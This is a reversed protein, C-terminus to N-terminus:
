PPTVTISGSNSGGSANAATVTATNPIPVPDCNSLQMQLPKVFDKIAATFSDSSRSKLYAKGFTLCQNAQFIGALQLDISAEGFTLTSLSRGGNPNIPDIVSGATNAQGEFTGLQLPHLRDWCPPQQGNAECTGSTIWRHFGMSLNVGGNSLDYKILVDGATRVPTVTNDPTNQVQASQNLEFDMNTTGSPDLVRIWALYLFDHVTNGVAVRNNHQYFRLLDSKNPPISGDTVSPIPTDEKTGQGFSDDTAGTADLACGKFTGVCSILNATGWDAGGNTVLNGDMELKTGNAVPTQVVFSAPVLASVNVTASAGPALEAVSCTLLKTSADVACTTWGSFTGLTWPLSALLQDSLAVGFAKGQGTNSVVITFTATTGAVVSGNDPTKEITLNPAVYVKTAPGSGGPGASGNTARTLTVAGVVASGSANATFTGATTSNITLTCTRSNGSQADCSVTGLTSPTPSVTIAIPAIVPTGGGNPAVTMVATFTHAETTSNQDTLPSLTIFAEPRTNVFANSLAASPNATTLTAQQPTPDLNYGAPAATETVTYTGLALGEVKFKGAAPDADPAANDTVNQCGGGQLCVSFTAGALPANNNSGDVKNWTLSGGVYLKTAPGSGGPGATGNTARTLSVSGVTLTVSANATFTGAAASNITLTCTRSNGAQAQCVVSGLTGPTPSVTIAIAPITVAASGNPIATAVATFTHQENLGNTESNPSITIFANPQTNVFANALAASPNATTLTAQQPTPDLNYGAPAVTETVSYTGLVLGMLKFKGAAPDQDPPSNDTVNQCSGGVLCVAFTAGGLPTNGNTGDVKNWTLEGGLYIKTAPGSGGPGATGNTARTLQVSGITVSVSANATFTGPTASNITLTCTRTNGAQAQCSVTGLTSPAPSVTIAIPAITVTGGGNPIATAVATFTHPENLGNTESNPSITIFANPNTNVFANALAAGPAAITLTAQQPTPDLNYGAPAATETVSYTGMGLDVLRFAGDAPNADPAANDTVAFCPPSGVRCVTFTAGALPAGNGDVKTWTLEGSVFTKVGPGSNDGAGNTSVAITSGGVSVSASANVTVTGATPSNVLVVCQGSADTNAGAAGCTTGAIATGTAGGGNTITFDVHVGAAPVFGAGDDLDKSVTVTFTHPEGIGNTASTPTIAIKAKPVAQVVGGSVNNGLAGVSTGDINDVKIHFPSGSQGAGGSYNVLRWDQLRAFHAGFALLVNPQNARFRVRITATVDNGGVNYTVPDVDIGTGGFVDIELKRGAAIWANLAAELAPKVNGPLTPSLFRAPLITITTHNAAGPGAGEYLPGAQGFTSRLTLPSAPDCYLPVVPSLDGSCLNARYQETTNFKALFDYNGNKAKNFGYTFTVTRERTPDFTTPKGNPLVDVLHVAFRFPIVEGEFYTAKGPNLVSNIWECPVSPNPGAVRGNNACQQWDASSSGASAFSPQDGPALPAVPAPKSWDSCAAMAGLAALAAGLRVATTPRSM